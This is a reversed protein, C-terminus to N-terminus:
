GDTGCSKIELLPAQLCNHTGTDSVIVTFPINLRDDRRQLLKHLLLLLLLLLSLLLNDRNTAGPSEV